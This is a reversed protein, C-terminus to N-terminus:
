REFTSVLLQLYAVFVYKCFKGPLGAVESVTRWAQEKRNRDRYLPCTTDYLIPHATVAIILKDEAM